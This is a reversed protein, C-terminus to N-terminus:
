PINAAIIAAAAPMTSIGPAGSPTIVSDTWARAPTSSGLALTKRSSSQLSGSTSPGHRLGPM